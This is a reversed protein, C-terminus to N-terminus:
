QELIKVDCLGFYDLYIYRKFLPSPSIPYTFLVFYYTKIAFFHSMRMVVVSSVQKIRRAKKEKSLVSINLFPLMSCSNYSSALQREGNRCSLFGNQISIVWGIRLEFDTNNLKRLSRNSYRRAYCFHLKARMMKSKRFIGRGCWLKSYYWSTLRFADREFFNRSAVTYHM